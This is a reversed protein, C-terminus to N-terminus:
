TRRAHMSETQRLLRRVEGALYFSGTVLRPGPAGLLGPLASAADAEVRVAQGQQRLWAAIAEPDEGVTGSLGTVRFSDALGLLASLGQQWRKGRASGFLVAVKRGPWRRRVEAAVAGLSQETHAGDFVIAEGDPSRRIEFRCPLEPRPAPDLRLPARPCLAAFAAAALALAPLEWLRADPLFVALERGDPLVLRARCGEATWREGALRLDRGLVSLRVAHDAAWRELVALAEGRAATFGRGGPRLVPAKQAAIAAETDGLLEMHELEIGTVISADVPLATTADYRGGLGVEWVALEVGAQAFATAAAATLAEFFTLRLGAQAAFGVVDRLVPELREVAIPAGGIAIRELLTDVHPSTYLGTRLEARRGLADLFASTTGKGKSGGVQVARLPRAGAGPRALLARTTTLDWLRADPRTREFNVLQGLLPALRDAAPDTPTV